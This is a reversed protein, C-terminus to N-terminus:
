EETIVANVAIDFGNRPLKESMFLSLCLGASFGSFSALFRDYYGGGYGLRYGEKDFSFAPVICLAKDKDSFNESTGPERIGFKGVTMEELASTRFFEMKGGKETKPYYVKKGDAVARMFIPDTNIEEPLSAYLLLSDASKYEETLFLNEAIKKEATRDYAKRKKRFFKRLRDKEFDTDLRM